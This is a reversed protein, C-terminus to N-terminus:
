GRFDPCMVWMIECCNGKGQLVNLSLGPFLVIACKGLQTNTNTHENAQDGLYGEVSLTDGPLDHVLRNTENAQDGLYGEVSLTDGPLDHVLRNTENAQDGLYGEVSLTDTCISYRRPPLVLSGFILQRFLSTYRQVIWHLWHVSWSIFSDQLRESTPKLLLSM